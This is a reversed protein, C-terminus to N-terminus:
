AGLRALKRVRRRLRLRGAALAVIGLAGVEGAALSALVQRGDRREGRRM